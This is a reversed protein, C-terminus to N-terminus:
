KSRQEELDMLRSELQNLKHLTREQDRRTPLGWMSWWADLARDTAIKTKMAATLMAGAPKLVDPNAFLKEMYQSTAQEWATFGQKWQDWITM